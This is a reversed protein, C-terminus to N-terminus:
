VEKKSRKGLVFVQGAKWSMATSSDFHDQLAVIHLPSDIPHYDM